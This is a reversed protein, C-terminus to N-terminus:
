QVVVNTLNDEKIGKKNITAVFLYKSLQSKNDHQGWMQNCLKLSRYSVDFSVM